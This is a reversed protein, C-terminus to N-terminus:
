NRACVAAAAIVEEELRLVAMLVVKFVEKFVVKVEATCVRDLVEAASPVSRVM